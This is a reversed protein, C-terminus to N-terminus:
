KILASEWIRGITNNWIGKFIRMTNSVPLGTADIGKAIKNLDKYTIEQKQIVKPVQLIANALAEISAEDMRTDAYVKYQDGKFVSITQVLIGYLDKVYPIKRLPNLEELFRTLIEHLLTEDDEEGDYNRIRGWVARLISEALSGALYVSAAKRMNAGQTRLAHQTGNARRDQDFMEAADMVINLGLTPEANFATLMKTYTDTGRMLESKTLVSDVVQTGFILDTLREGVAKYYDESGVELKTKDRTELECANWLKRWTLEDMKGALWLTKDILKDKTSDDQMIKHALGNNIALNYFGMEKWVAMGCYKMILEPDSKMAAAKVLYKNDIAYGARIYSLPQLLVVQMNAAVAATKYNKSFKDLWDARGHSVDGNLDALLRAIYRNGKKGIAKEISGKVTVYKQRVVEAEEGTDREVNEKTSLWDSQETSDLNEVEKYNWVRIVNLVPLAFANYQAMDTSHITFTEFIDFIEVPNRAKPNLPKTFGMNLLQYLSSGRQRAEKSLVNQDVIIPFYNKETYAKYGFRQMTVENGWKSCTTSLFEQLKDAVEIQENTLTSIIMKLDSESLTVNDLQRVENKGDKFTAIKIGGNSIHRLGQDRKSLCYLSMIQPVTMKIHTEETEAVEGRGYKVETIDFDKVIERWKLVDKGKFVSKAYQEIEQAKYAYEGQADMLIKFLKQGSPGLRKFFYYPTTNDIEMFQTLANDVNKLGVKDLYDIMDKGLDSVSEKNHEGYVKNMNHVSTKLAGILKNLTDLEEVSMQQLNFKEGSAKEAENIAKTIQEFEKNFAPLWDLQSMDYADPDDVMDQDIDHLMHNIRGMMVAMSQDKKTYENEHAKRWAYSSTTYDISRLLNIIPKRLAQPVPNAKPDTLLWKSLTKSQEIIKSTLAEKQAKEAAMAKAAKLADNEKTLKGVQKELEKVREKVEPSANTLDLKESNRIDNSNANFRESLPIINKNEDYVVTEASKVQNPKFVVYHVTGKELNKRNAMSYDIIGDHKGKYVEYIIEYPNRTDNEAIVYPNELKLFVPMVKGKGTLSEKVEKLAKNYLRDSEKDSVQKWYSGDNTYKMLKHNYETPFERATDWGYGWQELLVAAEKNIKDQVDGGEFSAYTNKAENENSTFYFGRGMFSDENAKDLNFETFDAFTGHFAKYNYGAEKAAQEVLINAEAVRKNDVAEIYASDLKNSYRIDKQNSDFRESLPIINGNDDYTVADASKVQDSNFAVIVDSEYLTGIDHYHKGNDMVNKVILGDYGNEKAEKALKRTSTQSIKHDYVYDQLSQMYGEEDLHENEDWEEYIKDVRKALRIFEAEREKSYPSGNEKAENILYRASEEAEGLQEFVYTYDVNSDVNNHIFTGYEYIARVDKPLANMDEDLYIENWKSGHADVVYPNTIKLYAEYIKSEDGVYTNAMGKSSSFFLSIRDDSKNPDFVKFGYNETGHYGKITYGAEKAAKDVMQQALKLDGSEVAEIYTSDLKDSRRIDADHTPNTNYVSKIQDSDFVAAITSEGDFYAEPGNDIVNKVILGDYGNKKAEQALQRTDTVFAASEQLYEIFEEDTGKWKKYAKQLIKYDNRLNEFDKEGFDTYEKIDKIWEELSELNPDDRLTDPLYYYFEDPDFGMDIISNYHMLQSIPLSVENKVERPINNWYQGHADIVLPNKINLYVEYIGAYNVKEFFDEDYIDDNSLMDEFAEMQTKGTGVVELDESDIDRGKVISYGSKEERLFYHDDRSISTSNMTELNREVEEEESMANLEYPNIIRESGSYTESTKPDSSFWFTLKDDSYKADFETYTLRSSGHFMTMLRGDDTRMDSDAFFKQVSKSLERGYNDLKDSNRKWEPLLKSEGTKKYNMFDEVVEESVPFEKHSGDYKKLLENAADMDFIPKVPYQGIPTGDNEYMKYETLLKWYNKAATEKIDEKKNLFNGNRDRKGKPMIWNGKEDKELIFPFIPTKNQENIIDLYRQVTEEGTQSENWYSLFPINGEKAKKTGFKETQLRTYDKTDLSLGMKEYDKKSWQSRHFPLVYDVREDCLAARVQDDNFVVCVIGVNGNRLKLADKHNMGEIDDFIVHKGDQMVGKAVCSMDIKLGTKGFIQAFAKQKTYGFGALGVRSMDMIAQMCDIMHVTEFDSFSNFRIGGHLNKEIITHEKGQFAKLIDGNYPRREELMKPKRQSLSNLFKEYRKFTEPHESRMEELKDPNSLEEATPIYDLKEEKALDIFQANYKGFRARASEVFCFSCPAEYGAAILAKRLYLFDDVSFILDNQKALIANMTGTYTLRKPCLFSYDLSGGYEPNSVWASKGEISAYDLRDQDNAIQSAISGIDKIYQKAEEVSIEMSKALAKAATEADQSYESSRWTKLSYKPYAYGDEVEVGVKNLVKNLSDQQREDALKSSHKVQKVNQANNSIKKNSSKEFNGQKTPLPPVEKKTTIHNYIDVDYVYDKGNADMRVVLRGGYYSVDQGDKIGFSIDYYTWGRQADTMHKQKKNAEWIPNLAEEVMAKIAQASNAKAYRYKNKNQYTSDSGTYEKAGNKDYYVIRNDSKITSSKGNLKDLYDRVLAKVIPFNTKNMDSLQFLENDIIITGNGDKHYGEKGIEKDANMQQNNVDTTQTQANKIAGQIGEVWLKRFTNYEDRLYKITENPSEFGSMLKDIFTEIREFWKDFAVRLKELSNVDLTSLVERMTKPDDLMDECGRAVVEELADAESFKEGPHTKEHSEIENKILDDYVGKSKLHDTIAKELITYGEQNNGRMWHTLEHSLTDIVYSHMGYASDGYPRAALNIMVTGGDPRDVVFHGNESAVNDDNIVQVNVGAFDAFAKCLLYIRKKTRSLNRYFDDDKVFNGDADFSGGAFDGKRINQSKMESVAVDYATKLFKLDQVDSMQGAEYIANAKDKGLTSMVKDTIDVNKTWDANVKGAEYLYRTYMDYDAIDEGGYNKVYANALRDDKIGEAITVIQADSKSLKIDKLDARGKDTNLVVKDGIRTFGTLKAEEGNLTTTDSVNLNKDIKFVDESYAKNVVDKYIAGMRADSVEDAWKDGYQNELDYKTETDLSDRFVQRDISSGIEKNQRLQSGNFMGSMMGGSLAGGAAAEIIRSRLEKEIIKKIEDDSKGQAKLEKVRLSVESNPGNVFEDSFINALETFTEESAEVGAQKLTEAVLEYWTTIAKPELLKDLSVKEFITEAAGSLLSGLVIDENSAGRESLEKYSSNFANTGMLVSYYEGFALAGIASDATSMLTKYMFPAVKESGTADAIDQAVINTVDQAYNAQGSYGKYPNARTGSILSNVYEIGTGLSGEANDYTRRLTLFADKGFKEIGSSEDAWKETNEVKKDYDRKGVYVDMDSLYKFAEKDRGSNQLYRYVAKEDETMRNYLKDWYFFDDTSEKSTFGYLQRADKPMQVSKIPQASYTAFDDNGMYKKQYEDFIHESLYKNRESELEKYAIEEETYEASPLGLRERNKAAWTSYGPIVSSVANIMGNDAKKLWSAKDQKKEKLAKDYEEISNYRFEPKTVPASMAAAKSPTYGESDTYVNRGGLRRIEEISHGTSRTKTSDSSSAASTGRGNRIKKIEEITHAM